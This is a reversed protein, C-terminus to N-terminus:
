LRPGSGRSEHWFAVVVLKGARQYYYIHYRVRSLYLRRLGPYRATSSSAGVGPHLSLLTAAEYFDVRIADPADPRNKAWWNAAAEMQWAARPTVEVELM